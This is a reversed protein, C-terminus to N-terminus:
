VAVEGSQNRPHSLVINCLENDIKGSSDTIDVVDIAASRLDAHHTHELENKNATVSLSVAKVIARKLLKVAESEKLDVKEGEMLTKVVDLCSEDVAKAFIRDQHELLDFDPQELMNSHHGMRVLLIKLVEPDTASGIIDSLNSIPMGSLRTLILNVISTHGRISAVLLAENQRFSPKIIKDALFTIVLGEDGKKVRELLSFTNVHPSLYFLHNLVTNIIRADDRKRTDFVVDSLHLKNRHNVHPELTETVFTLAQDNDFVFKNGRSTTLVASLYASVWVGDRFRGALGEVIEYAVCKLVSESFSGKHTDLAEDISSLITAIMRTANSKMISYPSSVIEYILRVWQSNSIQIKLWEVVEQEKVLIM